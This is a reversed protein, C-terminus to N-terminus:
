GTSDPGRPSTLCGKGLNLVAVLRPVAVHTLAVDRMLAAGLMQAAVPTQAALATVLTGAATTTGTGTAVITRVVLLTTALAEALLRLVAVVLLADATADTVVM